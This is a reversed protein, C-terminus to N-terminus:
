LAEKKKSRGELVRDDIQNVRWFTDESKVFDVTVAHDTGAFGFHEAPMWIIQDLWLTFLDGVTYLIVRGTKAGGNNKPGGDTYNYVDTLHDGHEETNTPRGLEGIVAVRKQGVVLCTPKFPSPQRIAMIQACSVVLQGILVIALLRGAKKLTTRTNLMVM